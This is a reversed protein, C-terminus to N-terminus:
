PRVQSPRRTMVISMTGDLLRTLDGDPYPSILTVAGITRGDRVLPGRAVHARRGGFLGALKYRDYRGDAGFADLPPIREITWAGEPWVAASARMRKVLQDVAEDTVFVDYTWASTQAPVHHPVFLARLEPAPRGFGAMLVLWVAFSLLPTPIM